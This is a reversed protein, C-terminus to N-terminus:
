GRLVAVGNAIRRRVLWSEIVLTAGILLMGLAFWLVPGAIDGSPTLLVRDETQWPWLARLSGAMLGTMIALTIRRRHRLLWQLGRVFLGFGIAMGALFLGLYALDRDNVAALTPAYMGLLLLIFSGSMGPLALACVALAGGVAIMLPGPEAGAAAPLGTVLFAVVASPAALAWERWTWRGGVMRAPVWLAVLILGAFFARSEVPHAEVLPAVIRAALLLGGVMGVALPVLLPWAVARFHKKATGLGRGRPPDVVLHVLGRVFESASDILREYVGIILALTGGSVGPIIEVIGILAGRILDILVRLLTM